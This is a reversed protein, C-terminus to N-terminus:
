HNGLVRLLTSCGAGPKGLVLTMEGAGCYGNIDHLITKTTVDGRLGKGRVINSLGVPVGKLLKLLPSFVNGIYAEGSGSGIVTLNEFLVGIRKLRDEDMNEAKQTLYERIDFPLGATEEAKGMDSRKSLTRQASEFQANAEDYDVHTPEGFNQGSSTEGLLNKQRYSPMRDVPVLDEDNETNGTYSIDRSQAFAVHRPLNSDPDAGTASKEINESKLEDENGDTATPKGVQQPLSMGSAYTLDDSGNGSAESAPGGEFPNKSPSSSM